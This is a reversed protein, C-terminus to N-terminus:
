DGREGLAVAVMGADARDTNTAKAAPLFGNQIVIGVASQVRLPQRATESRFFIQGADGIAKVEVVSQQRVFRQPDAQSVPKVFLIGPVPKIAAHRLGGHRAANSEFLIAQAFLPVRPVVVGARAIQPIAVPECGADRERQFGASLNRSGAVARPM